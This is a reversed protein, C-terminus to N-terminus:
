RTGGPASLFLWGKLEARTIGYHLLLALLRRKLEHADDELSIVLVRCRQFVHEGTLSRGLALSLLQALRVATKGVGGDALLSSMFKRAFVSGLLWGRPPPLETDEGADWEGLNLEDEDPPLEDIKFDFHKTM